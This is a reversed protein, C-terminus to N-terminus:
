KGALRPSPLAAEGKKQARRAPATARQPRAAAASSVGQEGASRSLVSDYTPSPPRNLCTWNLCNAPLPEILLAHRDDQVCHLIKDRFVRSIRLRKTSAASGNPQAPPPCSGESREPHCACM